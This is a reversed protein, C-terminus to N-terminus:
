KNIITFSGGLAVSFGPSLTVVSPTKITLSAGNTVVANGSTRANTVSSGLSVENAYIYNNGSIQENQIYLPAIYPFHNHKNVTVIFNSPVNSFTADSGVVSNHYSNGSFLGSIGILCDADSTSVNVNSGSQTASVTGFNTPTSTWIQVEPCGILNHTLALYHKLSSNYTSKSIAEAMGLHFNSCGFADIFKRYLQTSYWVWGHRTNGLFVPGGFDGEVTFSEGFSYPVHHHYYGFGGDDNPTFDNYKDFPTVDCAITYAIAPYNQNKLSDLGNGVEEQFGGRYSDLSSIGKWPGQNVGQSLSSIGYVDGHGFWSFLGYRENMKSIIDNGTPYTTNQSNYGPYEELIDNTSFYSSLDSAITGAENNSQLQDDQSYFAKGLYSYDGLGPNKEYILVKNIFNSVEVSNKCLLRGVNLESSYEVMDNSAEGYISDGDVNWNGNLDSFYLDSPIKYALTPPYNNSYNGGAGYRVPVISDQGGLLVYAAGNQWAYTLYQRLKGADDYLNSIGDGTIDPDNLISQMTVVGASVGKRRKWSILKEFSLSLSESTIVIYEYVPLSISSASRLSVSTLIYANKKLFEDKNELQLSNAMMFKRKVKPNIPSKKNPLTTNSSTVIEFDITSNLMISLDDEKYQVPSVRVTIIRINGDIFEDSVLSVPSEPYIANPNFVKKLDDEVLATNANISTPIPSPAVQIKAELSIVENKIKLINIELKSQNDSIYFKLYKYPIIPFGEKFDASLSEYDIVKLKNQNESIDKIKVKEKSFTISYKLQASVLCSILLAILVLTTKKNM